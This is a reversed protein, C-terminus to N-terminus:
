YQPIWDLTKPDGGHRGRDGQDLGTIAAMDDDDLEFDFLAFNERMRDPNV